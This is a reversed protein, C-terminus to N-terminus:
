ALVIAPRASAIDGEPEYVDMFLNLSDQNPILSANRGYIITSVKVNQFVENKYRFGNCGSNQASLSFFTSTLFILFPFFRIFKM